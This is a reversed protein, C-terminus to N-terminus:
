PALARADQGQEVKRVTAPYWRAGGQATPVGEANLADAIARYSRGLERDAVIRALVDRPLSSPRGLRVGQARKVALAERTRQGIMRRELQAFTASVNAMAEGTPTTTDVGLDLAVVAWGRRSARAILGSADHVSRSLRDLKSVVLVDADGRDLREVAALLEPRKELSAGSLGEDGVIELEWGEREARATITARQADLGAGSDVQGDTSVRVYGIARLPADAPRVARRPRRTRTRTATV